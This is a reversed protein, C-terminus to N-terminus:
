SVKSSKKRVKKKKKMVPKKETVEEEAEEAEAKDQETLGRDSLWKNEAYEETLDSPLDRGIAVELASIMTERYADAATPEDLRDKFDEVDKYVKLGTKNDYVCASCLYQSRAENGMNECTNDAVTTYVSNHRLLDVRVSSIEKCVAEGQENNLSADKLKAELNSIKARIEAAEVEKNDDWIGRARLIKDVEASTLVGERLANSFMTRYILDAKNLVKQSPRVFKLVLDNGDKDKTKFIRDKSTM